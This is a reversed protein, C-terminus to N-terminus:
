VQQTIKREIISASSGTYTTSISISSIKINPYELVGIKKLKFIRVISYSDYFLPLLRDKSPFIASIWSAGIAVNNSKEPRSNIEVIDGDSIKMVVSDGAKLGSIIKM